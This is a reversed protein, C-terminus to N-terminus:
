ATYQFGCLMVSLFSLGLYNALCRHEHIPLRLITLITFSWLNIYLNLVIGKLIMFATAKKQLFPCASEGNIYVNLLGRLYAFCDQLFIVFNSSEYM